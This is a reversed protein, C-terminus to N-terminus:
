LEVKEQFAPAESEIGLEDRIKTALTQAATEEGQVVFIKRIPKRFHSLWAMLGRQDAHASYAEIQIVRAKVEVEQDLIKVRKEGEALKRGLTGQSQYSVVLLTNRSDSLYRVEHHIIRGGTSMGSGAIIIKPSAIENIAKSQATTETFHLNPFKFIDDGSKILADTAVNFYNEYKKYVQTIRIALPSDIFIPVAPIRKHEVLNNLQYLLEQTREMAFSPIMLVGGRNVTNEVADELTNQAEKATGRHNRDGYASEILIYDAKDLVTPARLIPVPYNGLDGSCVIIKEEGQDNVILKVISSGLIHGAEYLMFKVDEGAQIEQEYNVPVFLNMVEDIDKQSSLPLIGARHAKEELLRQADELILRTFDITPPTAYIKGTFGERVLLPLRGIHDLHSHSIIVFDIQKAEYPFGGRNRRDMEEGSQFMGCDVLFRTKETEFFHNAGSVEQAGGCFTLKM